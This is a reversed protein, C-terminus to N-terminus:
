HKRKATIQSESFWRKAPLGEVDTYSVKYSEEEDMCWAQGIIIGEQTGIMVPEDPTFKYDDEIENM